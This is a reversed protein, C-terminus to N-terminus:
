DIKSNLVCLILFFYCYCVAKPLRSSIKLCISSFPQGFISEHDTEWLTKSTTDPNVRFAFCEEASRHIYSYILIYLIYIFVSYM